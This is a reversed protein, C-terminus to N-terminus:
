SFCFFVATFCVFWGAFVLCGSLCFLFFAWVLPCVFSGVWNFFFVIWVFLILGGGFDRLILFLFCSLVLCAGVFFPPFGLSLVFGLWFCGLM